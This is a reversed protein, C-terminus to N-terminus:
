ILRKEPRAKFRARNRRLSDKFYEARIAARARDIDSGATTSRRAQAAKKARAKKAQPVYYEERFRTMLNPCVGAKCDAISSLMDVEILLPPLDERGGRCM